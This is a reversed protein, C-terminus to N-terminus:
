VGNDKWLCQTKEQNEKQINRKSKPIEVISQEPVTQRYYWLTSIGFFPIGFYLSRSNCRM